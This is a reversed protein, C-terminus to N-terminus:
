RKSPARTSTSLVRLAAAYEEGGLSGALEKVRVTPAHLLKGAVRGVTRAIEELARGSVGDASLRGTPRTLAADIVSDLGCTVALLHNVARDEYHVYLHPTLEGFCEAV